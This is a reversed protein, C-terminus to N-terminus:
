AYPWQELGATACAMAGVTNLTQIQGSVLRRHLAALITRDDHGTIRLLAQQYLLLATGLGVKSLQRGLLELQHNVPDFGTGRFFLEQYGPPPRKSGWALKKM